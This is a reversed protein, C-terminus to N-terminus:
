SRSKTMLDNGVENPDMLKYTAASTSTGLQIKKPSFLLCSFCGPILHAMDHDTYMQTCTHGDLITEKSSHGFGSLIKAVIRVDKGLSILCTRDQLKYYFLQKLVQELCM